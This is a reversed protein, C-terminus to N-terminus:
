TGFLRGALVIRREFDALLVEGMQNVERSRAPGVFPSLLDRLEERSQVRVGLRCEKLGRYFTGWRSYPHGGRFVGSTPLAPQFEFRPRYFRAFHLAMGHDVVDRLESCCYFIWPYRQLVKHQARDLPWFDEGNRYIAKYQLGFLKSFKPSFFVWDAPVNKELHQTLPWDRVDFGAARFPERVGDSTWHATQVEAIYPEAM